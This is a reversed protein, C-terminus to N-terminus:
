NGDADEEKDHWSAVTEALAAQVRESQDACADALGNRLMPEPTASSGPNSLHAKGRAGGILGTAPNAARNTGAPGLVMAM